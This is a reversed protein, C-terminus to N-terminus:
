TSSVINPVLFPIPFLIGMLSVRGRLIDESYLSFGEAHFHLISFGLLSDEQPDGLVLPDSIGTFKLHTMFKAVRPIFLYYHLVSSSISSSLLFLFVRVQQSSLTYSDEMLLFSVLHLM